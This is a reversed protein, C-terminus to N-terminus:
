PTRRRSGRGLLWGLVVGGVAVGAGMGFSALMVWPRTETRAKAPREHVAGAPRVAGVTAAEPEPVGPGGSDDTATDATPAPALLHEEVASFFEGATRRAVSGLMRQGVGGIMGGIVADADYDVRTGGDIETLRVMVTADVTGPAGQGRARLTFSEPALPDTLAVEGQYVGKISAVGANVTMRYTDHGSEELRECGPITRVLVAPDQLATWVQDRQVGIVASGGVKM